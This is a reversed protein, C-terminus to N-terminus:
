LGDMVPLEEIHEQIEVEFGGCIELAEKPDFEEGEMLYEALQEACEQATKSNRGTHFWVGNQKCWASYFM